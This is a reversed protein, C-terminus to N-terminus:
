YGPYRSKLFACPNEGLFIGRKIYTDNERLSLNLFINIERQDKITVEARNTIKQFARIVPEHTDM